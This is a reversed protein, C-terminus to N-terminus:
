LKEDTAKEKGRRTLEVGIDLDNLKTRDTLYSGFVVVSEVSYALESRENVRKLRREPQGLRV